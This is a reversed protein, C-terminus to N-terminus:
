MMISDAEQAEEILAQERIKQREVEENFRQNANNIFKQDDEDLEQTNEGDFEEGSIQQLAVDGGHEKIMEKFSTNAHVGYKNVGSKDVKNFDEEMSFDKQNAKRRREQIAKITLKPNPSILPALYEIMDLALDFDKKKKEQYARYLILWQTETLNAYKEEFPVGGLEFVM